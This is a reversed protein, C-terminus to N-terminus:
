EAKLIATRSIQWSLTLSEMEGVSGAIRFLRISTREERADRM